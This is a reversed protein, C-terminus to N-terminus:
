QFNIQIADMNIIGEQYSSHSTEQDYCLTFTIVTEEEIELQLGSVLLLNHNIDILYSLRHPNVLQGHIETAESDGTLNTYPSGDVYVLGDVLYFVDLMNFDEDETTSSLNIMKIQATIPFDSINKIYLRFIYTDNPVANQFFAEIEEQTAVTTFDEDDNKKVGLSVELEYSGVITVFEQIEAQPSLTFFAYITVVLLLSTM